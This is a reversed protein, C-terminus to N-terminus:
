DADGLQDYAQTKFPAEDDVWITAGPGVCLSANGEDWTLVVEENSDNVMNRGM